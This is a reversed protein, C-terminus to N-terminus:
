DNAGQERMAAEIAGRFGYGRVHQTTVTFLECGATGRAYRRFGVSGHKDWENALWRLMEADKRLREIEDAAQTFVPSFHRGMSASARTVIEPHANTQEKTLAPFVDIPYAEALARLREILSEM